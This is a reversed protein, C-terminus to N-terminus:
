LIFKEFINYNDYGHNEFFYMYYSNDVGVSYHVCFEKDKYIDYNTNIESIIKAYERRNLLCTPFAFARGDLDQSNENQEM